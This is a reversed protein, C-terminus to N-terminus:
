ATRLSCRGAAGSSGSAAGGGGRGRGAPLHPGPPPLHSSTMRLLQAAPAPACLSPSGRRRAASPQTGRSASLDTRQGPWGGAWRAGEGRGPASSPPCARVGGRGRARSPVWSRRRGAGLASGSHLLESRGGGRWWCGRPDPAWRRPKQSTLTGGVPFCILNPSHPLLPQPPPPHLTRPPLQCPSLIGMRRSTQLQPILPAAVPDWETPPWRHPGPEWDLCPSDQSIPEIRIPTTQLQAM